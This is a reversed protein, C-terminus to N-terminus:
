KWFFGLRVGYMLIGLEKHENLTSQRQNSGAWTWIALSSKFHCIAERSHNNEEREDSRQAIQTWTREKERKRLSSICIHTVEIFIQSLKPIRSMYTLIWNRREEEKNM